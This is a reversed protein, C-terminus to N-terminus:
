NAENYTNCSALESLNPKVFVCFTTTHPVRFVDEYKIEGFIYFVMKGSRLIDIHEKTAVGTSPLTELPMKAGPQLVGVTPLGRVKGYKPVFESGVPLVTAAIKFMCKMAPTKGSNTLLFGFQTKEGQKIYVLSDGDKYKPPASETLGIWARQELHFQEITAGLSQTAQSVAGEMATAIRQDAEIIKNTQTGADNMEYLQGCFILLTIIAVIVGAQTLRVMSREFASMREEIKDEAAKLQQETAPESAAPNDTKAVTVSPQPLSVAEKKGAVDQFAAAAADPEHESDM